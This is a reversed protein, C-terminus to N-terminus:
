PNLVEPGVQLIVRLPCDTAHSHDACDVEIFCEHFHNFGIVAIFQGLPRHRMM